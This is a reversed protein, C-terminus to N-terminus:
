PLDGHEDQYGIVQDVFAHVCRRRGAAGHSRDVEAVLETTDDTLRYVQAEFLAGASM